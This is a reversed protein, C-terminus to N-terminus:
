LLKNNVEAVSDVFTLSTKFVCKETPIFPFQKWQWSLRNLVARHSLRVGKPEGSSGLINFHFTRSPM